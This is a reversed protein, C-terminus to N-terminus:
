TTVLPAASALPLWGSMQCHSGPVLPGTVSVALPSLEPRLPDTVNWITEGDQLVMRFWRGFVRAVRGQRRGITGTPRGSPPASVAFSGAALRRVVLGRQAPTLRPSNAEAVVSFCFLAIQEGRRHDM